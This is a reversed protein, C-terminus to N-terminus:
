RYMSKRHPRIMVLLRLRSWSASLSPESRMGERRACIHLITARDDTPSQLIFLHEKFKYDINAKQGPPAQCNEFYLYVILTIFAGRWFRADFIILLLRPEKTM